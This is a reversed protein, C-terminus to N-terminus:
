WFIKNRHDDYREERRAKGYYTFPGRTKERIFVQRFIEAPRGQDLHQYPERAEYVFGNNEIENQMAKDPCNFFSFLEGAVWHSSRMSAPREIGFYAKTYPHRLVLADSFHSSM